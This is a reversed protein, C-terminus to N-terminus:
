KITNDFAQKFDVFHMFVKQNLEIKELMQRQGSYKNSRPGDQKKNLADVNLLQM